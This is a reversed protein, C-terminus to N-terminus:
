LGPRDIKKMSEWTEEFVKGDLTYGFSDRLEWTPTKPENGFFETSYYEFCVQNDSVRAIVFGIRKQEQTLPKERTLFPPRPTYFKSSASGCIIQGLESNGDPSSIRSRQYIHDHGSLYYRVGNQQLCAYFANQMEPNGDQNTGDGTFLNDKHNQGVLNKHSFVFAFSHDNKKLEAELWPQYDSIKYAKGSTSGDNVLPFIDLCIFKGNKHTFSYTMGEAGPLDPSSGGGNPTGPLDPFAEKYQAISEPDPSDHNGRLSYFKIGAEELAKNHAARTQFATASAKDTLDGVQIVFDVKQRIFEANIADIVHIAVGNFPANRQWQTDPIVGFSWTEEASLSPVLPLVLIATFFHLFLRRTLPM